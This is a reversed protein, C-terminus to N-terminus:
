TSSYSIVSFDGFFLPLLSKNSEGLRGTYVHRGQRHLALLAAGVIDGARAKARYWMHEVRDGRGRATIKKHM